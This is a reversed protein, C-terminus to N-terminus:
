VEGVDLLSHRGQEEFSSDTAQLNAALRRYWTIRLRMGGESKLDLPRSHCSQPASVMGRVVDVTVYAARNMPLRLAFDDSDTKWGSEFDNLRSFSCSAENSGDPIRGLGLCPKYNKSNSHLLVSS